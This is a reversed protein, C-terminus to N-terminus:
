EHSFETKLIKLDNESIYIHPTWQLKGIEVGFVLKLGEISENDYRDRSIMKEKEIFINYTNDNGVFEKKLNKPTKNKIDVPAKVLSDLSSSQFRYSNILPFCGYTVSIFEENTKPINHLQVNDNRKDVLKKFFPHCDYSSLNHFVFPIFNSQKQTANFNGKKHALGRNKGTLHCHDRVRKSSEDKWLISM